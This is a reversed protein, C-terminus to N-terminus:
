AMPREFGVVSWVPGRHRLALLMGTREVVDIMATPKHVFARFQKGRLRNWLNELAVACRQPANSTPHSFVLMSRAHSGAAALLAEYDPYCCVVRHLVVVDAAEVADPQRAIDLSRRSMRDALGHSDMLERAEVDYNPSLELNTATAAGRRLLDVEIDGVGGGIELVTAGEIGRTTLFDVM